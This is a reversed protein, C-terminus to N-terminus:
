SVSFHGFPALQLLRRHEEGIDDAGCFQDGCHVWLLGHPAQPRGHQAHAMGDLPIAAGDYARQAVAQHGQKSHRVCQLTVRQERALRRKVHLLRERYAAVAKRNADAQM